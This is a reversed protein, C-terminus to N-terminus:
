EVFSYASPEKLGAVSFYAQVKGKIRVEKNLNGANDVLNLATRVSSGSKLQVPIVDEGTKLALNSAAFTQTLGNNDYCGAITGVVWVEVSSDKGDAYYQKVDAVTYPNTETGDGVYSYGPRETPNEAKVLVPLEGTPVLAGDKEENGVYPAFSGYTSMQVTKSNSVNKIAATGNENLTVEWVQTGDSPCTESMTFSNYDSGSLYWGNASCITYGGEVAAFTFVNDAYGVKKGDIEVAEELYWYGYSEGAKKMPSVVQVQDDKEFTVWYNGAEFAVPNNGTTGGGTLIQRNAHHSLSHQQSHLM